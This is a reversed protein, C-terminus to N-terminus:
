IDMGRFISIIPSIEGIIDINLDIPGAVNLFDRLNNQRKEKLKLATYPLMLKRLDAQLQKLLGPLKCRSFVFSRPIKDGTIHDVNAQKKTSVSKVFVKKKIKFRPMSVTQLELETAKHNITVYDMIESLMAAKITKLFERQEAYKKLIAEGTANTEELMRASNRVSDGAQAEKNFKMVHAGDGNWMVIVYAYIFCFAYMIPEELCSQGRERKTARKQNRADYRDLSDKLSQAWEAIREVKRTWLDRESKAGVSRWLRDMEACVSQICTLSLFLTSNPDQTWTLQMQYEQDLTLPESGTAQLLAPDKMWEHYKPVHENKYPVLIVRGGELSVREKEREM